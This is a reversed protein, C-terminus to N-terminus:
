KEMGALRVMRGRSSKKGSPEPVHVLEKSEILKDILNGFRWRDGVPVGINEAIDRTHVTAKNKALIERLKKEVEVYDFSGVKEKSSQIKPKSVPPAEGTYVGLCVGNVIILRDGQNATFSVACPIVTARVQVIEM